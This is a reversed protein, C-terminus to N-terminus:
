SMASDLGQQLKVLSAQLEILRQQEKAVVEAPAKNVYGPNNLKDQTKILEQSAKAIEKNLRAIEADKDVLGQMLILIEIDGALATITAPLNDHNDLFKISKLKAM